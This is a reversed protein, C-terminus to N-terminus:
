KKKKGKAKSKTKHQKSLLGKLMDAGTMIPYISTKQRFSRPIRTSARGFGSINFGGMGFNFSTKQIAKTQQGIDQTQTQKQVEDPVQIQIEDSKQTQIPTQGQGSALGFDLKLGAAAKTLEKAYSGQLLGSKAADTPHSLPSQNPYNTSLLDDDTDHTARTQYFPKAKSKTFPNAAQGGMSTFETQQRGISMDTDQIGAKVKFEVISVPKVKPVKVKSMSGLSSLGTLLFSKPQKKTLDMTPAFTKNLSTKQVQAPKQYVQQQTWQKAGGQSEVKFEKPSLTKSAFVGGKKDFTTVKFVDAQTKEDFAGMLDGEGISKTGGAMVKQYLSHEAFAKPTAKAKISELWGKSGVPANSIQNLTARNVINSEQAQKPFAKNYVYRGGQRVLGFSEGMLGFGAGFAAGMLPGQSTVKGTQVYEFVSGGGAGIAANVGVRGAAKGANVYISTSKGALGLSSVTKGGVGSFIIGYEAAQLTENPTLLSKSLDGGQWATSGTKVAQSVGVGITAAKFVGVPGLVPAIAGAILFTALNATSERGRSAQWDHFAQKDSDNLNATPDAMFSTNPPSTGQRSNSRVQYNERNLEAQKAIGLAASDAKPALTFLLNDGSKEVKTVTMGAPVSPAEFLGGYQPYGISQYFGQSQQYNKTWATVQAGQDTRTNQNQMAADYDSQKITGKNKADLFVANEQRVVSGQSPSPDKQITSPAM